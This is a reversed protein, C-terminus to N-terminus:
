VSYSYVIPSWTVQKELLGLKLEEMNHLTAAAIPHTWIQYIRM